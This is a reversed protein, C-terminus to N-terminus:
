IPAVDSLTFSVLSLLMRSIVSLMSVAIMIVSLTLMAIFIKSLSAM